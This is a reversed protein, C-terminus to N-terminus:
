FIEGLMCRASGGGVAEITPIALPLLRGHRELSARQAPTFHDYATRSMVIVPGRASRLELINGAMRAMQARTIPIVDKGTRRLEELLARREEPDPISEACVVAFRSGVSMMVNTHYVAVGAADTSRFRVPRYRMRRAFEELVVSDTRPSLAAYAVRNARDLVLSGTGELFLGREEFPGLDVVEDVPLGEAVLRARLEALRREARRNPALMPYGVLVRPGGELAHLSFWNNPFVADPTRVDTRSPLRIVRVGAQRLAEAAADFERLARSRAGEGDASREQFANSGATEANFGFDDPSVMLVVSTTQRERGTAPAAPAGRAGTEGALVPLPLLILAALISPLRSPLRPM